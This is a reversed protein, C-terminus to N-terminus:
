MVVVWCITCGASPIYLYTYMHTRIHTYIYMHTYAHHSWRQWWICVHGNTFMHHMSIYTHICTTWPYIPIYVHPAHIYLYTYIHVHIYTQAHTHIRLMQLMGSVTYIPIYVHTCTRLNTCTHTDKHTHIYTPIQTVGYEHRKVYVQLFYWEYMCMSIWTCKGLRKICM